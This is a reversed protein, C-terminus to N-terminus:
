QRSDLHARANRRKTPKRERERNSTEEEWRGLHQRYRESSREDGEDDSREDRVETSRSWKHPDAECSRAESKSDHNQHVLVSSDGTLFSEGDDSSKEDRDDELRRENV